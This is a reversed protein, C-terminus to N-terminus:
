AITTSVTNSTNTNAHIKIHTTHLPLIRIFILIRAIDVTPNVTTSASSNTTNNICTTILTRARLIISLIGHENNNVTANTNHTTAKKIHKTVLTLIRRLVLM